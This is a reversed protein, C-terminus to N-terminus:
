RSRVLPASSAYVDITDLFEDYDFDFLTTGSANDVMRVPQMSFGHLHYPHVANTDNRVTLELLDGATAYRSISQPAVLLWDGNGLNTDFPAAFQDIGPQTRVFTGLGTPTATTFRM